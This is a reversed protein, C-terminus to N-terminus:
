SKPAVPRLGAPARPRRPFPLPPPCSLVAPATLEPKVQTCQGGQSQLANPLCGLGNLNGPGTTNQRLACEEGGDSGRQGQRVQEEHRAVVCHEEQLWTTSGQVTVSHDGGCGHLQKRCLVCVTSRRYGHLAGRCLWM